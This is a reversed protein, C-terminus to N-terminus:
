KSTVYVFVCGNAQGLGTSLTFLSVSAEKVIRDCHSHTDLGATSVPTYVYITSAALSIHTHMHNIM